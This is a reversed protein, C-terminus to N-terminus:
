ARQTRNGGTTPAPPPAGQTVQLADDVAKGFRVVARYERWMDRQQGAQAGVFHRQGLVIAPERRSKFWEVQIQSHGFHPFM